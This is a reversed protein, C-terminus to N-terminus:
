RKRKKGKAGKGLAPGQSRQPRRAGSREQSPATTSSSEQENGSGSPAQASPPNPQIKQSAQHAVPAGAAPLAPLEGGAPCAGLAYLYGDESTVHLTGDAVTPQALIHSKMKISGIARDGTLFSWRKDGTARELAWVTGDDNGVYVCREDIAPTSMAVSGHTATWVTEGTTAFYAGITAEHDGLNAEWVKAGDVARLAYLTPSTAAVYVFGDAYVPSSVIETEDGGVTFFVLGSGLSPTSVVAGGAEYSWREQGSNADVAFMKDTRSGIFIMGGAAVPASIAPTVVGHVAPGREGTEFNWLEEGSTLELAHLKGCKTAVFLRGDAVDLASTSPSCGGGKLQKKWIKEGTHLNLATIGTNSGIFITEGHVVVGGSVAGASAEWGQRGRGKIAYAKGDTSGLYTWEDLVVPSVIIRHEAHWTWLEKGEYRSAADVVQAGGEDGLGTVESIFDTLPSCGSLGAGFTLLCLCLSRTMTTNGM